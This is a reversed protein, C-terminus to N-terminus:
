KEGLYKGLKIPITNGCHKCVTADKKILEACHPCKRLDGKSLIIVPLWIPGLLVTMGFSICGEGKKSGLYVGWVVSGIYIIVFLVAM